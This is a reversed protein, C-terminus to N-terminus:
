LTRRKGPPSSDIGKWNDASATTFWSRRGLAHVLPSFTLHTLKPSRQRCPPPPNQTRKAGARSTHRPTAGHPARTPCPAGSHCTAENQLISTIARSPTTQCPKAHTTPNSSRPRVTDTPPPIRPPAQDSASGASQGSTTPEPRPPNQEARARHHPTFIPPRIRTIKTPHQRANCNSANIPAFQPARRALPRRQPEPAHQVETNRAINRARPAGRAVIRSFPRKRAPFAPKNKLKTQSRTARPPRAPRLPCPFRGRGSKM